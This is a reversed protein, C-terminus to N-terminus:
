TKFSKEISNRKKEFNPCFSANVYLNNKHKDWVDDTDFSRRIVPHNRLREQNDWLKIQKMQLNWDIKEKHLVLTRLNKNEEILNKLKEYNM